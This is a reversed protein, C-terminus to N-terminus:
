NEDSDKEATVLWVTASAAEGLRWSIQMWKRQLLPALQLWAVILKLPLWRLTQVLLPVMVM